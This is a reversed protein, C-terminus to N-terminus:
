IKFNSVQKDEVLILVVEELIVVQHAVVEQQVAVEHTMVEQHLLHRTLLREEPTHQLVKDSPLATLKVLLHEVLKIVANTPAQHVEEERAEIIIEQIIVVRQEEATIDERLREEKTLIDM